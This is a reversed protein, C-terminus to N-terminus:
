SADKATLDKIQKKMEVMKLERGVMLENLRKVESLQNEMDVKSKNVQDLAERLQSSNLEIEAWSSLDKLLTVEEDTFERPKVDILCLAGPHTGDIARLPVGLYARIKLGGTVNPNDRFREDELTDRIILPEDSLITHGCFSVSRDMELGSEIGFCSKSVQIDDAILNVMAVPVGFLVAVVRTIRDFREESKGNILDLQNLTSLRQVENLPKAPAIM